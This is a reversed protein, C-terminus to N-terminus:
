VDAGDDDTGEEIPGDEIPGDEIPSAAERADRETAKRFRRKGVLTPTGWQPAAPDDVDAWDFVLVQSIPDAETYMRPEYVQPQGHSVQASWDDEDSSAREDSMNHDGAWSVTM